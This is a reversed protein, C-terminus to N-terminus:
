IVLLFVTEGLIVEPVLLWRAAKPDACQRKPAPMYKRVINHRTAATETQGVTSIFIVLPRGYIALCCCDLGHHYGEFRQTKTSETKVRTRLAMRNRTRSQVKDSFPAVPIETKLAKYIAKKQWRCLQEWFSAPLSIFMVEQLPLGPWM